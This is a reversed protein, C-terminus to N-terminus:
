EGAINRGLVQPMNKGLDMCCEVMNRDLVMLHVPHSYLCPAKVFPEPNAPGRFLNVPILGVRM